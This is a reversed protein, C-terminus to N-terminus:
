LSKRRIQRTKLYHLIIGLAALSLGVAQSVSLWPWIVGRPTDARVFETFFRAIGGLVFYRITTLGDYANSTRKRWIYISLMLAVIIEYLQSPHLHTGARYQLLSLPSDLAIGWPLDTPKGFCCGALFCGMRGPIQGILSLLVVTDLLQLFPFKNRRALYYAYGVGALFGGFWMSSNLNSAILFIWGNLSLGMGWGDIISTSLAFLLHAGGLGILMFSIAIWAGSFWISDRVSRPLWRLIIPVPLAPWKLREMELSFGIACIAITVNYMFAFSFLHYKGHEILVPFM